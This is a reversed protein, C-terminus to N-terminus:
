ETFVDYHGFAKNARKQNTRKKQCRKECGAGSMDAVPGIVRSVRVIMHPTRRFGPIVVLPYDFGMPRMAIKPSKIVPILIFVPLPSVSMPVVM